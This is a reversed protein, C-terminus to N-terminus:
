FYELAVARLHWRRHEGCLLSRLEQSKEFTFRVLHRAQAFSQLEFARDEVDDRGALCLADVKRVMRSLEEHGQPLAHTGLNGVAIRVLDLNARVADAQPAYGRPM